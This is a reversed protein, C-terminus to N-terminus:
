EKIFLYLHAGNDCNIGLQSGRTEIACAHVTSSMCGPTGNTGNVTIFTAGTTADPVTYSASYGCVSDTFTCTESIDLTQSQVYRDSYHGALTKCTPGSPGAAPASDKGCASLMAASVFLIGFKLASFRLGRYGKINANKM